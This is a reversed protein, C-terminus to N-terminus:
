KKRGLGTVRMGLLGLVLLVASAPEPIGLVVHTASGDNPIWTIGGDLTIETFVDFFSDVHFGGPIGSITTEGLSDLSPSERITFGPGTLTMSVIETQFTGTDDTPQRGYAVTNVQGEAYLPQDPGGNVSILGQLSSNFEHHEGDPGYTVLPPPQQFPQHQIAKLVITLSPGSYMAHVDSPSLYVGEPPLNPGPQDVGQAWVQGSSGMLLAAAVCVCFKKV